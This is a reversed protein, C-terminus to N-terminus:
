GERSRVTISSLSIRAPFSYGLRLRLEKVDGNFIVPQNDRLCSFIINLLSILMDDCRQTPDIQPTEVYQWRHVMGLSLGKLLASKDAEASNSTRLVM